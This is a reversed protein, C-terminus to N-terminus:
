LIKTIFTALKEETDIISEHTHTDISKETTIREERIFSYACIFADKFEGNKLYEFFGKKGPLKENKLLRNLSRFKTEVYDVLNLDFAPYIGKIIKRYKIQSKYKESRHILKYAPTSPYPILFPSHPLISFRSFKSQLDYIIFLEAIFESWTTKHDSSIWYHYNNIGRKEFESILEYIMKKDPMPKGLRIGRDKIFADTGLWILPTDGNYLEKDTILDVAEYNITNINQFFSTLSSQIGWISLGKTKITKFVSDAYVLDQLLDDDNINIVKSNNNTIDLEKIRDLYTSLLQEINRVPLTRYNRGQVKSCFICNNRCGRSFNMELGNLLEKRGSFSFNFLLKEQENVINLESFDSFLLVGDKQFFLGSFKMLEYINGSRLTNLIKPFVIEGEGRVFVNIEPFHFFASLPSLSVFPGGAAIITKPAPPANNLFERFRVFIDEFLTFGILDTNNYFDTKKILPLSINALDVEYGNDILGSGLFLPAATLGVSDWRKDSELYPTSLKVKKIDEQIIYPEAISHGSTRYSNGSGNSTFEHFTEPGSNESNGTYILNKNNIDLDVRIFYSKILDKSYKKKISIFHSLAQDKTFQAPNFTIINKGEFLKEVEKIM